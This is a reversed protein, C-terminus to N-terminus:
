KFPSRFGAIIAEEESKFLREPKVSKYLRHEPSFYIREGNNINGKIKKKLIIYHWLYSIKNM